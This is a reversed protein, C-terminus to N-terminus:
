EEKKLRYRRRVLFTGIMVEFLGSIILIVIFFANYLSEAEVPCVVSVLGHLITYFIFMNIIGMSILLIGLGDDFIESIKSIKESPVYVIEKGLKISLFIAQLPFIIVIGALILLITEVILIINIATVLPALSAAATELSLQGYCLVLLSAGAFLFGGLTFKRKEPTLNNVLYIVSISFLMGFWMIIATTELIFALFITLISSGIPLWPFLPVRFPRRVDVRKKRLTYTSINVISLAILVGFDALHTIYEVMGSVVFMEIFLTTLLLSYIPTGYKKHLSAFKEPFYYDKAMAYFLHAASSMSVNISTLTAVLGAICVVLMGINGISRTAVLVLPTPSKSLSRWDVVVVSILATLSYILICSVISIIIGLPITKEPDKVGGALVGIPEFGFYAISLFATAKFIGGINFAFDKVSFIDPHFYSLGSYIILSFTMVLISVLIVQVKTSSHTGRINVIFFLIVILSSLIIPNVPYLISFLFSFGLACVAAYTIYGIWLSLGAFYATFGGFAEKIYFYGGGMEPFTTALEAYNFGMFLAIIGALILSVFVYQHAMGAAFGILVFMSPGITGGIGIAIVEWFRITRKEAM